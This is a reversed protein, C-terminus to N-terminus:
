AVERSNLWAHVESRRWAVARSGIKLPKPFRGAKVEAYLWTQGMGTLMLIAPKRYLIEGGASGTSIAATAKAVKTAARRAARNGAGKAQDETM